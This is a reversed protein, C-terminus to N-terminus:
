ADAPAELMPRPDFAVRVRTILGNDVHTWNVTPMPGSGAITLDFWTITDGSAQDVWRKVIDLSTTASFLGTLSAAYADAGEVHALPGDFVVDDHLFPRLISPDKARWAEFYASVPDNPTTM